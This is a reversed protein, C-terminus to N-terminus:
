VAFELKASPVDFVYTAGAEIPMKSKAVTINNTNGSTREYFIPVQAKPDFVVHVKAAVKGNQFHAWHRAGSGPRVLTSDVLRLNEKTRRVETPSLQTLLAPIVAEFAGPSRAKNADTLTSRCAPESRRRKLTPAHAALVAEIDRL